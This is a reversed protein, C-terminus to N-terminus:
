LTAPQFVDYVLLEETVNFINHKKGKPVRVIVGPKLSFTGAGEVSIKAKGHIPYLIDAQEEHVHEPIEAGAPIRVLMCTVDLGDESKTVLPKIRVEKVRPHPRWALDDVTKYIEM